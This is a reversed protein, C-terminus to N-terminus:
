RFFFSGWANLEGGKKLTRWYPTEDIKREDSAHAAINMFIGATLPCTFDACHKKALHNYIGLSQKDLLDKPINKKRKKM